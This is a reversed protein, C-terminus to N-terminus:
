IAPLVSIPYHRMERDSTVLTLEEVKAQAILMRDFPDHHRHPLSEIALAHPLAVPLAEFRTEALMPGLASPMELKGKARKVGIEWASVVSAFVENSEDEIADAASSSLRKPEVLTWFLANTDLLFRV